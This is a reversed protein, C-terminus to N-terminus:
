KNPPPLAASQPIKQYWSGGATEFSDAGASMDPMWELLLLGIAAEVRSLTLDM